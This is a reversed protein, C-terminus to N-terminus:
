ISNKEKVIKVLQKELEEIMNTLEEIRKYNISKLEIRLEMLTKAILKVRDSNKGVLSILEDELEKIEQNLFKFRDGRLERLEIRYNLLKKSIKKITKEM